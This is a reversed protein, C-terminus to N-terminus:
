LFWMSKKRHRGQWFSWVKGTQTWETRPPPTASSEVGLRACGLENKHLRIRCLCCLDLKDGQHMGKRLWAEPPEDPPLESLPHVIGVLTIPTWEVDDCWATHNCFLWLAFVATWEPMSQALNLLISHNHSMSCGRRLIVALIIGHTTQQVWRYQLSRDSITSPTLSLRDWVCLCASAATYFPRHLQGM